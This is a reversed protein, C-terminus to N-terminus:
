KLRKFVSDEYIREGTKPSFHEGCNGHYAFGLSRMMDHIDGFLPQNEYLRVFSTEIILVRAQTLTNRGGTIVRDEFGQVDMKVLVDPTLLLDPALSDLRRMEIKESTTTASKPYLDKHLQAMARLSSSPHFSSREIKTAGDTDGLATNFVRFRSDHAFRREVGKFCDTLPEFAYIQAYPFLARMEASWHGDNAGIDLITKIDYQKLVTEFLSHHRRVDYGFSRLLKKVSMLM